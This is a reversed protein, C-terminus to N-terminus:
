HTSTGAPVGGVIQGVCIIIPEAAGPNEEKCNPPLTPGVPSPIPDAIPTPTPSPNAPTPTPTPSPIPDVIPTPSPTPNIGSGGASAPQVQLVGRCASGNFTADTYIRGNRVQATSIPQVELSIYYDLGVLGSGDWENVDGVDPIQMASYPFNFVHCDPDGNQCSQASDLYLDNGDADVLDLDITDQTLQIKNVVSLDSVAIRWVYFRASKKQGLNLEAIFQVDSDASYTPYTGPFFYNAFNQPVIMGFPAMGLAINGDNETYSPPQMATFGMSTGNSSEVCTAIPLPTPVPTSTPPAPTPTPPNPTPTPPAPTATPPNPTPTPTAVSATYTWTLSNGGPTGAANYANINVTGPKASPPVIGTIKTSSVVVVSNLNTDGFLVQMPSTFGTGDIEVNERGALPGSDVSLLSGNPEIQEISTLSIGGTPSPTPTPATTSAEYVYFASQPQCSSAKCLSLYVLQYPNTASPAPPAIVDVENWRVSVVTATETGFLIQIPETFGEGIIYVMNGGALPGVADNGLLKNVTIYSISWPDGDYIYSNSAAGCNGPNCLQVSVPTGLSTPTAVSAPMVCKLQTSSVYESGFNECNVNNVLFWTNPIFNVGNVLVTNGGAYPGDDIVNGSLDTISTLKPTLASTPPPVPPGSIPSSGAISASSIDESLSSNAGTGSNNSNSHFLM